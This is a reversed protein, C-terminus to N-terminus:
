AISPGTLEAYLVFTRKLSISKFVRAEQGAMEGGGILARLEQAIKM